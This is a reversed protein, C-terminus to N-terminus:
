GLWFISYKRGPESYNVWGSNKPRTMYTAHFTIRTASYSPLNTPISYPDRARGKSGEDPM